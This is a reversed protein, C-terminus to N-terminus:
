VLLSGTPVSGNPEAVATPLVRGATFGFLLFVFEHFSEVISSSGWVSTFSTMSIPRLGPDVPRAALHALCCFARVGGVSPDPLLLM